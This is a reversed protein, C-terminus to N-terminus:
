PQQKNKFGHKKSDLREVEKEWEKQIIKIVNCEANQKATQKNASNNVGNLSSPLIATTSVQANNM